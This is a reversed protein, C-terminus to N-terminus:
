SAFMRTPAHEHQMSAIDWLPNFAGAEDIRVLAAARASQAVAPKLEHLLRQAARQGIWGLRQAASVEARVSGFAYAEATLSAPLGIVACVAGFVVPHHHYRGREAFIALRSDTLFECVSRLLSTGIASSASRAERLLLSAHLLEDLEVLDDTMAHLVFPLELRTISEELRLELVHQLDGAPLLELGFAHAYAGTPFASDLVHLTDLWHM